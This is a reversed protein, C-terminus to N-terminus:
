DFETFSQGNKFRIIELEEYVLKILKQFVKVNPTHGIALFVGDCKLENVEDTKINKLKVGKVFRGDGLVETVASDWIVNVKDKLKFIRNQMIKSARFKNRRHVITIKSAFKYLSLTEEMATDGGGVVVVKKDKFLAADCTACTSVGKGKYKDEGKVDLWRASAGTSIIVAKAHYKKKNVEIEYYKGAKKFSDVWGEIYETGFRKAQEKCNNILEPGLIGNVFGPYNEVLTTLSLQDPEPASIVLPKFNARSNYLAATHAAIGGGIIMIDRVEKAM